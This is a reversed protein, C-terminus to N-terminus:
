KNFVLSNGDQKLIVRLKYIKNSLYEPKKSLTNVQTNEIRKIYM